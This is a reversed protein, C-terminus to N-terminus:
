DTQAALYLLLLRAWGHHDAADRVVRSRWAPKAVPIGVQVGPQATRRFRHPPCGECQGGLSKGGPEGKLKASAYYDV